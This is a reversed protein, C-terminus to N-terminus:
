KLKMKFAIFGQVVSHLTYSVLLAYALGIAGMQLKGIFFISSLILWLAWLTNVGFGLWMKGKSIIVQGFVNNIACIIVTILMILLPQFNTFEKGYSKYILPSLIAVLIAISITVAANLLINIKLLKTYQNDSGNYNTNTLIPLLMTSLSSPIFLVVYYWQEAVDFTAIEGYGAHSILYTKAWWLVPIFVFSQLVAPLSFSVFISSIDFKENNNNEAVIRIKQIDKKLLYKNQLLLIFASFGLSAIVGNIGWFFAGLVVFILQILGNIATILGLSKFREFGSLAGSQVSSLSMFMLVVSGIRLTVSLNADNLQDKAIFNSFLFIFVSIILSIWFVTKQAFIYIKYAKQPNSNRYMAIYRTATIGMGAMSFILFMNLTSRIISIQGYEQKGVLRAVLIFAVLQLFKGAVNGILTWSIGNVLRKSLSSQNIKSRILDINETIIKM